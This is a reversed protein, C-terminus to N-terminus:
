IIENDFIFMIFPLLRLESPDQRLLSHIEPTRLSEYPEKMESYFQRLIELDQDKTFLYQLTYSLDIIEMKDSLQHYHRELIPFFIQLKLLVTQANHVEHPKVSEHLIESM